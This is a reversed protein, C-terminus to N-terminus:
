RIGLNITPRSNWDINEDATKLDVFQFESLLLELKKLSSRLGIYSKFIRYWPLGPVLPQDPDFDRPHFYSM